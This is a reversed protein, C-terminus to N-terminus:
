MMFLINDFGEIEDCLTVCLVIIVLSISYVIIYFKFTPMKENHNWSDYFHVRHDIQM